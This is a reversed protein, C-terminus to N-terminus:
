GAWPRRGPRRLSAEYSKAEPWDYSGSLFNDTLQQAQARATAFDAASLHLEYYSEVDPAYTCDFRSYEQGCNEQIAQASCDEGLRCRALQLSASFLERRQDAEERPLAGWSYGDVFYAYHAAITILVEPDASAIAHRFDAVRDDGSRNETEEARVLLADGDGADAARRLWEERTGIEDAPASELPDCKALAHEINARGEPTSGPGTLNQRQTRGRRDPREWFACTSLVAVIQMQAESDGARAAPLLSRVFELDDTSDMWARRLENRRRLKEIMSATVTHAAVSRVGPSAPVPPRPVPSAPPQEPPTAAANITTGQPSHAARQHRTFSFGAAVTGLLAVM